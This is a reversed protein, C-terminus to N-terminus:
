GAPQDAPTGSGTSRQAIPWERHFLPFTLDKEFASGLFPIRAALSGNVDFGGYLAARGDTKPPAGSTDVTISGSVAGRLYPEIGAKIGVTDYLFVGADALLGARVQANGTLKADVPTVTTAGPDATANGTPALVAQGSQQDYSDLKLDPTAAKAPAGSDSPTALAVNPMDTGSAVAVPLTTTAPDTPEAASAVPTIAGVALVASAALASLAITRTSM